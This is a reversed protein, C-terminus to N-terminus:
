LDFFRVCAYTGILMPVAKDRGVTAQGRRVGELFPAWDPKPESASDMEGVLYHYNSDMWKSM